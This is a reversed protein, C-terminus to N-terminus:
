LEIGGSPFESVSSSRLMVIGRWCGGGILIDFVSYNDAKFKRVVFLLLEWVGRIM